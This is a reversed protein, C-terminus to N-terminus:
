ISGTAGLAQVSADYIEQFVPAVDVFAELVKPDFHEPMTRGDGETIIRFAEKHTLPPKYPRESRLADYQDCIITIRAQIPIEEGKIGRPYGSGDWREHHNLAITEALQIIYHDSGSLIEYGFAAHKMMVEFESQTLTEPKLLIHDPIGVKGIDHMSSAFTIAEVFDSSMGLSEAIKNAYRGIRSIHIGTDASKYESVITLRGILEKSMSKVMALADSLEKTREKITSELHLKYNRELDKLHAFKLAKEITHILYASKFPKVIFDYAGKKIAEICIDIEPFATMLIVPLEPAKEHIHELLTLGSIDPMVIDTLVIDVKNDMLKAMADVPRNCAIVEYGNKRLMLTVMALIDTDDDVLLVTSGRGDSM